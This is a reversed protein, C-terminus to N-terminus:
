LPLRPLTTLTPLPKPTFQRPALRVGAEQADYVEEFRQVCEDVWATEFPPAVNIANAVAPSLMKMRMSLKQYEPTGVCIHVIRWEQVDCCTLRAIPDPILEGDHGIVPIILRGEPYKGGISKRARDLM